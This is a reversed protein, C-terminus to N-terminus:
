RVTTNFEGREFFLEGDLQLRPLDITFWDPAFLKNGLRSVFM